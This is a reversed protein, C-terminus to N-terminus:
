GFHSAAFGHDPVRYKQNPQTLDEVVMPSIEYHIDVPGVLDISM